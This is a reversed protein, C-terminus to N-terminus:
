IKYNYSLDQHEMYPVSSGGSLALSHQKVEKYCVRVILFFYVELFMCLGVIVLFIFATGVAGYSIFIIFSAVGLLGLIIIGFVQCILYPLMLIPKSKNVGWLLMGCIATAVLATLGASVLVGVVYKGCIHADFDPAAKTCIEEIDSRSLAVARLLSLIHLISGILGLWGLILTGTKVSAGCCCQKPEWVM